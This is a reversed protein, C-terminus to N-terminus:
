RRASRPPERRAGRPRPARSAEEPDPEPAAILELSRLAIHGLDRPCPPPTVSPASCRIGSESDGPVTDCRSPYSPRAAPLERFVVVRDRGLRKAEYLALDAAALLAGPDRTGVQDLDAAGASVTLWPARACLAGRIREGLIAAEAATSRPMLVCFEDGGVRAALDRSRCTDALVEGLTALARDGAAHGERDNLDKLEDLDLALLALPMSSELARLLERGLRVELHRRNAIGTLADTTSTVVLLDERRGLRYGVAGLGTGLAVVM